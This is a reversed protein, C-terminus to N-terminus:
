EKWFPKSAERRLTGPTLGADKEVRSVNMVILETRLRARSEYRRHWESLTAWVRKLRSVVVSQGHEVAGEVRNEHSDLWATNM